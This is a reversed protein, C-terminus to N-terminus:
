SLLCKIKNDDFDVQEDSGRDDLRNGKHISTIAGTNVRM